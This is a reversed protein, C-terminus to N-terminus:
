IVAEEDYIKIDSFTNDMRKKYIKICWDMVSSYYIELHMPTRHRENEFYQLFDNKNKM